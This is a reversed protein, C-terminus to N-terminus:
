ECWLVTKVLHPRPCKGAPLPLPQGPHWKGLRMQINPMESDIVALPNGDGYHTASRYRLIQRYGASTLRSVTMWYGFPKNETPVASVVDGRLPGSSMLRVEQNNNHGTVQDYAISFADKVRDYTLIQTRVGQDGNASLLTGTRVLLVPRDPTAEVRADLLEHSQGFLDDADARSFAGTVAPDCTRGGDRSLCLTVPGPAKGDGMVPDDIEPGQTAKFVWASRTHFAAKLDISSVVAPAPSSGAALAAAIFLAAPM